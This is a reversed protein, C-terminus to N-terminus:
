KVESQQQNKQKTMFAKSKNLIARLNPEEGKVNLGQLQTKGEWRDTGYPFVKRIPHETDGENLLPWVGSTNSRFVVSANTSLDFIVDSLGAGQAKLRDHMTNSHEAAKAGAGGEIGVPMKAHAVFVCRLGLTRCFVHFSILKSRHARNLDFGDLGQAKFHNELVRDYSTLTDFIVNKVGQSTISRLADFVYPEWTDLTIEGVKEEGFKPATVTHFMEGTEIVKLINLPRLRTLESLDISPMYVGMVERSFRAAKDFDVSITDTVEIRKPLPLQDSLTCACVTKGVGSPGYLLLDPMLEALPDNNLNPKAIMCLGTKVTDMEPASGKVNIVPM